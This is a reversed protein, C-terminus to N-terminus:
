TPRHSRTRNRVADPVTYQTAILQQRERGSPMPHGDPDRFEYPQGTRVIRALRWLLHIAVEIVAQQHCKGKATMARYYVAALQPDWHRGIDAALYLAWRAWSPGTKTVHGHTHLTRNSQNTAIDLGVYAKLAKRSRVAQIAPWLALFFPALTVGVGPLSRVLQAPDLIDYLTTLDAEVCAKQERLLQHQDLLRQLQQRAAPLRERLAAREAATRPRIVLCHDQVASPCVTWVPHEEFTQWVEQFIAPGDPTRLSPAVTGFEPIWRDILATARKEVTGLDRALRWSDKIGEKLTGFRPDSPEIVPYLLDAYTHAYKALIFADLRDTKTHGHYSERFRKVRLPIVCDVRVRRDRWFRQVPETAPGTPEVIVRLETEPTIQTTVWQYLQELDAPRTRFRQPKSVQQGRDNVLVAWHTGYRALDCGLFAQSPM